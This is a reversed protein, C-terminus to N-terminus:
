AEYTCTNDDDDVFMKNAMTNGWKDEHCGQAMVILRTICIDIERRYGVHIEKTTAAPNPKSTESKLCNRGSRGALHHSSQSSVVLTLDRRRAKNLLMAQSAYENRCKTASADDNSVAEVLDALLVGDCLDLQLDTVRRKCGGRELYYNAWDTYIQIVNRTSDAKIDDSSGCVSRPARICAMVDIGLTTLTM